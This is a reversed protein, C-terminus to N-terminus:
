IRLEGSIEFFVLVSSSSPNCPLGNITELSTNPKSSDIKYYAKNLIHRSRRFESQFSGEARSFYTSQLKRTFFLEVIATTPIRYLIKRIVDLKIPAGYDKAEGALGCGAWLDIQHINKTRELDGFNSDPIQLFKPWKQNPPSLFPVQFKVANLRDLGRISIKPSVVKGQFVSTGPQLQYVLDLLFEKLGIGEVGNSHSALCVTSCLLAELFMGDNSKQAANSFDLVQQRHYIHGTAEMLFRSYSAKVGDLKFAPFYKGGMLILYLLVDNEVKPFVSSPKWQVDSLDATCGDSKLIFNKSMGGLQAFHSHILPTLTKDFDSLEIHANHFLRLQGLKGHLNSFIKKIDVVGLFVSELLKNINRDNSHASIYKVFLEGFLPRSHNLLEMIWTPTNNLELNFSRINSAPLEGFVHCWPTSAASRSHDSISFPLVAARSDTGLLVLGLGLARFCNRVLRLKFFSSDSIAICEDLIFVDRTQLTKKDVMLKRVERGTKGLILSANAPL